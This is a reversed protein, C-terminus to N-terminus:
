LLGRPTTVTCVGLDCRIVLDRGRLVALADRLDSDPMESRAPDHLGLDCLQDVIRALIRDERLYLNRARGPVASKSSSHGHRCRYGPRGHVWHSEMRRGCHGCQVLGVLLYERATGDHAGAVANIAQAAIFDQESVLPPHVVTASVVWQQAPNWRRVVPQGAVGSGQQGGPDHHAQQRNWVQRGTYRPNGLIAAVTRLTWAEGSRHRNRARDVSSPCPVGRENLERAISAVSYGALRRAFMWRVWPATVADVELRHLRRGWQAHVPNPHPGADVLRYGYPPRGGQHRGQERVQARMAALVRFRSRLVERKSQAGLLMVLAQHAPLAFDVPGGIEPLWLQVGHRRLVPALRMLQDGYFGREYEGVVIADFGREPDAIAALLAAARPRDRWVARRSVGVDFYEAVIGGHGGILERAFDRQWEGSSAPDQFERTSVRGYFAFRVGGPAPGVKRVSRKPKDLTRELWGTLLDAGPRDAVVSVSTVGDTLRGM